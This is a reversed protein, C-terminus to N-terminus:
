LILAAAVMPVVAAFAVGAVREAGSAKTGPSPSAGGGAGTGSPGTRSGTASPGSSATATGNLRMANRRFGDLTLYNTGNINIGGVGGEACTNWDFFWITDSTTVNVSLYTIASFNGASRFSSDFGNLTINFDHLPICPAAFTSQTATHNGQTFNFIVVDGIDATVADPDFVTSAGDPAQTSGGVTVVVQKALSAAFASLAFAPAFFTRM